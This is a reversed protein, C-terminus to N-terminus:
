IVPRGGGGRVGGACAGTAWKQIEPSSGMLNYSQLFLDDCAAKGRKNMESEGTFVNGAFGKAKGAATAVWVTKGSADTLTWELTIILEMKDLAWMPISQSINIVKATLTGSSAAGAPAIEKFAAHAMLEVDDKLVPGLTYIWTDGMSEYHWHAKEFEPAYEVRVVAPVKRQPYEKLPAVDVKIVHTCGVAGMVVCFVFFARVFNSGTVNM